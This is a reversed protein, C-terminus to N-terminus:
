CVTSGGVGGTIAPSSCSKRRSFLSSSSLLQFLGLPSHRGRRCPTARATRSRVSGLLILIRMMKRKRSPLADWSALLYLLSWLGWPAGLDLPALPEWLCWSAGFLVGLPGLPHSSVARPRRWSPESIAGLFHGLSILLRMKQRIRSTLVDQSTCSAELLGM